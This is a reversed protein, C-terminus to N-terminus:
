TPLPISRWPELAGLYSLSPSPNASANTECTKHHSNTRLHAPPPIRKPPINCKSANQQMPTAPRRRPRAQHPPDPHDTSVDHRRIARPTARALRAPRLPPPLIRTKPRSDHSIIKIKRAAPTASAPSSKARRISPLPSTARANQTTPCPGCAPPSFKESSILQHNRLIDGSTQLCTKWM